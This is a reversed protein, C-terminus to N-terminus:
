GNSLDELVFEVIMSAVDIKEAEWLGRFGGLAAVEFVMLGEQAEAVNVCTFDLGFLAAARQAPDNAAPKPSAAEFLGGKAMTTNWSDKEAIRAYSGIHRGHLFAIGLNRGPIDIMKQVYMMSNGLAKFAAIKEYLLSDSSFFVQM